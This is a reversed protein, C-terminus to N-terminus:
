RGSERTQVTVTDASVRVAVDVDSPIWDLVMERVAARVTERVRGLRTERGEGAREVCAVWHPGAEAGEDRADSWTRAWLIEALAETGIESGPAVLALPESLSESASSAVEGQAVRWRMRGKADRTAYEIRVAREPDQAWAQAANEGHTEEIEAATTWVGDHRVRVRIEEVKELMGERGDRREGCVYLGTGERALAQALEAIDGERANGDEVLLDRGPDGVVVREASEGRANWRALRLPGRELTWGQARAAEVTRRKLTHGREDNGRALTRWLLTRAAEVVAELAERARADDMEEDLRGALEPGATGHVAWRWRDAVDWAQALDAEIPWGEIWLPEGPRPGVGAGERVELTAGAASARALTRRARGEPSEPGESTTVETEFPWGAALARAKRAVVRESWETGAVMAMSTGTGQPVGPGPAPGAAGGSESWVRRWHAGNETRATVRAEFGERGHRYPIGGMRRALRRVWRAGDLAADAEASPPPVGDDEWDIEVYGDRARVGIRARTAGGRIARRAARSLGWGVNDREESM